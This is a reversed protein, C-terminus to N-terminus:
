DVRPCSNLLERIALYKLKNRATEAACSRTRTKVSPVDKSFANMIKIPVGHLNSGQPMEPM